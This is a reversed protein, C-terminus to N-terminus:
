IDQLSVLNNVNNEVADSNSSRRHVVRSPREWRREWEVVEIPVPSFLRPMLVNSVLM